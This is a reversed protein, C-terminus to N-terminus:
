HKMQSAAIGLNLRNKGSLQKGLSSGVTVAKGKTGTHQNPHSTQIGTYRVMHVEKSTWTSKKPTVPFRFHQLM